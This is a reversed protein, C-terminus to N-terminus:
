TVEGDLFVQRLIEVGRGPPWEEATQRAALSMRLLMHRDASLTALQHVITEVDGMRHMFGNRGNDIRDKAACTEESALVVVGNVMAELIVVGYPEWRAPHLMIHARQLVSTVDDSELWGLFEVNECLGLDRVQNKLQELDPGTGCILYRFEQCGKLVKLRSLANLAIDFGKHANSIQGVSVIMIPDEPSVEKWRPHYETIPAFYPFSVIKERPCGMSEFAEIGPRGTVLVRRASRFVLNSVVRRFLDKLKSRHKYPNPTDSFFVYNRRLIALWFIFFIRLPCNWGAIFFNNSRDLALRFLWPDIALWSDIVRNRFHMVPKQRWPHLSCRDALFHVHLSIEPHKSMESFFHVHYPTPEPCVWHITLVKMADRELREGSISELASDVLQTRM